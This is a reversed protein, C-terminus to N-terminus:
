RPEGEDCLAEMQSIASATLATIADFSEIVREIHVLRTSPDDERVMNVTGEVVERFQSAMAELTLQVSTTRVSPPDLDGIDDAKSQLVALNEALLGQWGEDRRLYPDDSLLAILEGIRTIALAAPVIADTAEDEWAQEAPTMCSVQTATPAPTAVHTPEPIQTPAPTPTQAPSPEATPTPSPPATGNCAALSLVALSLIVLYRLLAGKTVPSSADTLLVAVAHSCPPPAIAGM